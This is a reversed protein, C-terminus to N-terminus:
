KKLPILFPWTSKIWTIRKNLTIRLVSLLLRFSKSLNPLFPKLKMVFIKWTNKLLNVFDRRITKRSLLWVETLTRQTFKIFPSKMPKKLTKGWRTWSGIMWPSWNPFCKMSRNTSTIPWTKFTQRAWDNTCTSMIETSTESSTCMKTLSNWQANSARFWNPWSPSNNSGSHHTQTSPLTKATEREAESWMTGSRWHTSTFTSTTEGTRSEEKLQAKRLSVSWFTLWIQNSHFLKSWKRAIRLTVISVWTGTILILIWLLGKTIKTWRFM